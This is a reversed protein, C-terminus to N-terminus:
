KADVGTDMAGVHAGGYIKKDYKSRRRQEIQEYGDLAQLAQLAPVLGNSSHVWLLDTFYQCPNPEPPNAHMVLLTYLYAWIHWSCKIIM